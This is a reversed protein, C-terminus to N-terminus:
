MKVELLGCQLKSSHVEADHQSSRIDGGAGCDLGLLFYATLMSTIFKISAQPCLHTAPLRDERIESDEGTM